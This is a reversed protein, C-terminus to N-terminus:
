FSISQSNLLRFNLTLLTELEAKYQAINEFFNHTAKRFLEKTRYFETNIVKKRLFRCLRGILNLTPSYPSLFIQTIKTGQIWQILEANRYYSANDSIILIKEAGPHKELAKQYLDKTSQANVHECDVAIVDTIDKANVLGNINLRDCGSVTPQMFEEGKSLYTQYRYATSIDIDLSDSVVEVSFGKSLMLICTVKVYSPVGALNRQYGRFEELELVTLRFEM